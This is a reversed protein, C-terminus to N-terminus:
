IATLRWTLINQGVMYDRTTSQDVHGEELLYIIQFSNRKDCKLSKAVQYEHLTLAREVWKEEIVECRHKYENAYKSQKRIAFLPFPKELQDLLM